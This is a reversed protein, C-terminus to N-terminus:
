LRRYIPEVFNEEIIDYIYSFGRICFRTKHIENQIGDCIDRGGPQTYPELEKIGHQTISASKDILTMLQQTFDPM